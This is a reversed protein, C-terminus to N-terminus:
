IFLHFCHRSWSGLVDIKWVGTIRITGSTATVWTPAVILDAVVMVTIVVALAVADVECAREADRRRESPGSVLEEHM